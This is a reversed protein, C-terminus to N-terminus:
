AFLRPPGVAHPAYTTLTGGVFIMVRFSDCLVLSLGQSSGRNDIVLMLRLFVTGIRAKSLIEANFFPNRFGEFGRRLHLSPRHHSM